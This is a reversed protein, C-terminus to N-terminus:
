VMYQVSRGAEPNMNEKILQMVFNYLYSQLKVVYVTYPQHKETAEICSYM